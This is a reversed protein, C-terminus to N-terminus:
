PQTSVQIAELSLIVERQCEAVILHCPHGPILSLSLQPSSYRPTVHVLGGGGGGQSRSAERPVSPGALLTFRLITIHGYEKERAMILATNKPVAVQTYPTAHECLIISILSYANLPSFPYPSFSTLPLLPPPFSPKWM